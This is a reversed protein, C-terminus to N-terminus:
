KGLEKVINKLIDTQSKTLKKLGIRECQISFMEDIKGCANKIKRDNSAEHCNCLETAKIEKEEESSYTGMPIVNIQGCYKCEATLKEM